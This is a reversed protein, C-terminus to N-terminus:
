APAGATQQHHDGRQSRRMVEDAAADMEAPTSNALVQEYLEIATVVASLGPGTFAYRRHRAYLDLVELLAAQAQLMVDLAEPAIAEARVIGLNIASALVNFDHGSGQGTRMATLSSQIRLGVTLCTDATTPQCRQVTRLLACPDRRMARRQARNM